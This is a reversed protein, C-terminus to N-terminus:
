LLLPYELLNRQSKKWNEKGRLIVKLELNTTILFLSLVISLASVMFPQLELCTARPAKTLCSCLTKSNNQPQPPLLHGM